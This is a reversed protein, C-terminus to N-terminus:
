RRYAVLHFIWGGFMGILGFGVGTALVGATLPPVSVGYALGYWFVVATGGGLAVHPWRGHRGTLRLYIHGPLFLCLLAPYSYAVGVLVIVFSFTTYLPLLVVAMPLLVMLGTVVLAEGTRWVTPPKVPRM